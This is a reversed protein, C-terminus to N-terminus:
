IPFDEERIFPVALKGPESSGHAAALLEIAHQSSKESPKIPVSRLDDARRLNGAKEKSRASLLELNSLAEIVGNEPSCGELEALFDAWPAPSELWNAWADELRDEIEVPLRWLTFSNPPNFVEESRLRAVSFVARARAFVHTKPFGRAIAMEGLGSLMGKTNWWKSRDMEGFRAVAIRLKAIQDINEIM